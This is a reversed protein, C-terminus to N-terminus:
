LLQKDDKKILELIIKSIKEAAGKEMINYANNAYTRLAEQDNLLKKIEQSFSEAKLSNQSLVLAAEARSFINANDEQHSHPMPILISAKKLASIETLTALGCRSVVLKSRDMIALLQNHNILEWALYIGKSVDEYKDEEKVTKESDITSKLDGKNKGTIHIINCFNLLESKADQVLKNIAVAGTGGGLILILPKDGELIPKLADDFEAFKESISIPNGTLVAKPGYDVLTKEFVATIIKACPAMLRNALGPRVDQQHIIIPIRLFFAAYILPVSAFSGVSIVLSPKEKRLLPFAKFFASFILFIDSFNKLSFYRRFKGAPLSLFRLNGFNEVMEKEPGDETGVFVFDLEPKLHRLEKTIELLPIVPGGSGGGSLMIKDTEKKDDKDM